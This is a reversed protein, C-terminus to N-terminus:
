RHVRNKLHKQLSTNTTQNPGKKEGGLVVQGLPKRGLARMKFVQFRLIKKETGTERKGVQFRELHKRGAAPLKKRHRKLDGTAGSNSKRLGV